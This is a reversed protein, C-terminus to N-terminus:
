RKFLDRLGKKLADRAADKDSQEPEPEAKAADTTAGGAATTDATAGDATATGAGDSPTEPEELGLKKLLRDQLKKTAANTALKALDVGVTPADMSGKLTLPITVNKLEALDEGDAFKPEEFVGAQFQYDMSQEVLDLVGNGTLRIFPIEATMDRTTVRGDDMRGNLSLKTIPTEAPGTLEPAPKRRLLARAKRIEHWIDVGKYVGDALDLSLDGALSEIMQDSTRGSGSGRINAQLLGEVNKAEFMAALMDGAQVAAVSQDFTTKPQEGTVDLSLAGQYRGGYLDASTPDLRILGNAAKVRADLNQVSLNDMTLRNIRLRGELDLDRLTDIPLETDEGTETAADGSEDTPALYRDLGIEDLSVQFQLGSLDVYNMQVRGEIHTDDLQMDIGDLALINKKVSWGTKGQLNSLVSPDATVVPEQDLADLLDRPSLPEIEVKGTLDSGSESYVGNGTANLEAGAANLGAVLNKIAARGSDLSYELADTRLSVNVEDGPLDGGRAKIDAQLNSVTAKGADIDYSVSDTQMSVNFEDAPLDGGRGEIDAQLDTLAAKGSNIDYGVSGSQMSLKVEEAPLDGGSAALDMRVNMLAASGGNVDYSVSDTQLSVNLEDAPIDGGSANLEATLGELAVQMTDLDIQTGSNLTAKLTTGTSVDTAKFSTKVDFPQGVSISGTKFDLGEVRYDLGSEADQFSIRADRVNLSAVSLDPLEMAEGTETPEEPAPAASEFEWNATGNAQRTLTLELGDLRVDGIRIEQRVILPWLRLGIKVSEVHAFDTDAFGPPNSLRGGELAISCCPLADISLGGEIELTRGTQEQVVDAIVGRYDEPDFLLLVAATVLVVALLLVGVIGICIKILRSM